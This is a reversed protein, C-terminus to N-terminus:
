PGEPGRTIAAPATVAAPKTELGEGAQRVAATGGGQTSAAGCPQGPYPRWCGGNAFHGAHHHHGGHGKGGHGHGKAEASGLVTAFALLAVALAMGFALVMKYIM